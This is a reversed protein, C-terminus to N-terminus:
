GRSNGRVRKATWGPLPPPVAGRAREIAIRFATTEEYGERRLSEAIEIAKKRVPAALNRLAPPYYTSIWPPM